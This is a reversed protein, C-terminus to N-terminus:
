AYSKWYQTSYLQYSHVDKTKALLSEAKRSGVSKVVMINNRNEHRITLDNCKLMEVCNKDYFPTM